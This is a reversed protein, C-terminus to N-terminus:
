LFAIISIRPTTSYCGIMFMSTRVKSIWRPHHQQAVTGDVSVSCDVCSASHLATGGTVYCDYYVRQRTVMTICAWDVFTVSPWPRLTAHAIICSSVRLWRLVRVYAEYSVASFALLLLNGSLLSITCVHHSLIVYLFLYLYQPVMCMGTTCRCLPSFWVGCPPIHVSLFYGVLVFSYRGSIHCGSCHM